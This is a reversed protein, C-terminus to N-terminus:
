STRGELHAYPDGHTPCPGNDGIHELCTCTIKPTVQAPAMIFNGVHYVMSYWQGQKQMRQALATRMGEATMGRAVQFIYAWSRVEPHAKKLEDATKYSQINLIRRPQDFKLM